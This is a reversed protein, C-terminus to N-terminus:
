VEFPKILSDIFEVEDTTLQFLESILEDCYNKDFEVVPVLDFKGKSLDIGSITQLILFRVFKTRLYSLCSEATLKEDFAAVVLYSHTCAEGPKLLLTKSFVKYTGEKGPEGAHESITRSVVVKFKNILELGKTLNQRSIFGFGKSHLIKVDQKGSKKVGRFSSPLDFVNIPSVYESLSKEKNEEVKNIIDFAKNHRILISHTNLRRKVTNSKGNHINTFFCKGAYEREWLFYSVGGSISVGPFCDKSNSYDVLFKLKSDNLMKDRFSDLGMGGTFWRSPTIMILYSPSLKKAQEIFLHYIPKAQRGHGATELQYPPNGIIVDFKMNFINQPKDTHIFQYAYTELDDTRSYVEESAGCYTCKSGGNRSWTHQLRDYKINGEESDFDTCVSYEGNAKKTCYTSRRALLSTLETIAIGYLQKTFIHNVREQQDPIQDTLGDNLRKAIERLFVGSKTVPDLFTTQKSEFLEQPLMDLIENVLKPPTFVEDNSLNALCSLVDPNYNITLM